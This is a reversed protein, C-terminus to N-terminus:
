FISHWKNQFFYKNNFVLHLRLLVSDSPTVKLITSSYSMSIVKRVVFVDFICRCASCSRCFVYQISASFRLGGLLCSFGWMGPYPLLFFFFYSLCLFQSPVQAEPLSSHFFFFKWVSPLGREPPSPSPDKSGRLLTCCCPHLPYLLSIGACCILASWCEGAQSAQRSMRQPPQPKPASAQAKSTLDWPSSWPQSCSSLRFPALTGYSVLLSDPFFDPSALSALSWQKPTCSSLPKRSQTGVSPLASGLHVGFVPALRM